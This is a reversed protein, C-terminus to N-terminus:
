IKEGKDLWGLEEPTLVVESAEACQEFEEPTNCGVAACINMPQNLVYALAIQPITSGKEQAMKEARDLREFNEEYCYAHVSSDDDTGKM